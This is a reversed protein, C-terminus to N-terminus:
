LSSIKGVMKQNGHGFQHVNVKRLRHGINSFMIFIACQADGDISRCIDFQTFYKILEVNNSIVILNIIFMNVQTTRHLHITAEQQMRGTAM